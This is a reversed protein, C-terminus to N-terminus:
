TMCCVSQRMDVMCCATYLGDCVMMCGVNKRMSAHLIDGAYWWAACWRDRAMICGMTYRWVAVWRDNVLMSEAMREAVVWGGHLGDGMICGLWVHLGGGGCWVAETCSPPYPAPLPAHPTTVWWAAGFLGGTAKRWGGGDLAENRGDGGASRTGAVAVKRLSFLM